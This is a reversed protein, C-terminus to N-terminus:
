WERVTLTDLGEVVERKLQSPEALALFVMAPRPNDFLEIEKGLRLLGAEPRIAFDGGDWKPGGVAGLLVADVALAKEMVADTVPVGHRDISCGGVLDEELDFTVTRRKAMWDVVRRVEGLVEPGIGDGPLLLLKKNAPM